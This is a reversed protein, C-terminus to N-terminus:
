WTCESILVHSSSRGDTSVHRCCAHVHQSYTFHTEWSVRFRLWRENNACYIARWISSWVYDLLNILSQNRESLQYCEATQEQHYWFAKCWEHLTLVRYSARQPGRILFRGNWPQTFLTKPFEGNLRITRIDYVTSLLLVLGFVSFIVRFNFITNLATFNTEEECQLFILQMSRYRTTLEAFQLWLLCIGQASYEMRTNLLKISPASQLCASEMILHCVEQEHSTGESFNEKKNITWCSERGNECKVGISFTILLHHLRFM